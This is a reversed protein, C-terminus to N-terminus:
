VLGIERLAGFDSGGPVANSGALSRQVAVYDRAYAFSEASLSRRPVWIGRGDQTGVQRRSELVAFCDQLAGIERFDPKLSFLCIVECGWRAKMASTLKEALRDRRPIEVSPLRFGADTPVLLLDLGQQGLTIAHCTEHDSRQESKL